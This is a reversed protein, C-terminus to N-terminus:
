RQKHQQMSEWILWIGSAACLIFSAAAIIRPTPNSKLYLALDKVMRVGLFSASGSFALISAIFVVFLGNGVLRKGKGMQEAEM